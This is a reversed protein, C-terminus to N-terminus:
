EALARVQGQGSELQAISELLRKANTPNRLLYATEEMAKDDEPSLMAAPPHQSRPIIITDMHIGLLYACDPLKLLYRSISVFATFHLTLLKRERKAVSRTVKRQKHLSFYGFSLVGQRRARRAEREPYV